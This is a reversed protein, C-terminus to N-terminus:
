GRIVGRVIKRARARSLGQSLQLYTVADHTTLSKSALIRECAERAAGKLAACAAVHEPGYTAIKAAADLSQAQLPSAAPGYGATLAKMTADDARGSLSKLFAEFRAGGNVPHPTLAVNYVKARVIKNGDRELVKGEISMGLRRPSQAKKLGEAIAWIRDASEIGELLIGETILGKATTVATEPHGIVDDVRHDYNFWGQDLFYGFDLGRQLMQEGDEDEDETSAIGRIGRRKVPNGDADTDSKAFSEADLIFSVNGLNARAM